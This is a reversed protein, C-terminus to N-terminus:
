WGGKDSNNNYEEAEKSNKSWVIKRKALPEHKACDNYLLVCWPEMRSTAVVVVVCFLLRPDFWPRECWWLMTMTTTPTQSHYIVPFSEWCTMMMMMMRLGRRHCDHSVAAPSSPVNGHPNGCSKRVLPSRSEPREKAITYLGDVSIAKSPHHGM